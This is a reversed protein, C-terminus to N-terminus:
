VNSVAHVIPILAKNRIEVGSETRGFKTLESLGSFTRQFLTFDNFTM